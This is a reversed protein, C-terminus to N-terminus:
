WSLPYVKVVSGTAGAVGPQMLETKVMHLSRDRAQRVYAGSGVHLHSSVGLTPEASDWNAPAYGMVYQATANRKTVSDDRKLLGWLKEAHANESTLGKDLEVLSVRIALDGKTVTNLPVKKVIMFVWKEKLAGSVVSYSKGFYRAEDARIATLDWATGSEFGDLVACAEKNRKDGCILSVRMPQADTDPITERKPPPPAPQVGTRVPGSAAPDVATESKNECGVATALTFVGVFFFRALFSRILFFRAPYRMVGALMGRGSCNPFM